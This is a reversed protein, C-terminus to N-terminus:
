DPAIAGSQRAGDGKNLALAGVVPRLRAVKQLHEQWPCPLRHPDADGAHGTDAFRGGDVHQTGVQGLSSM